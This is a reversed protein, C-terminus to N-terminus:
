RDASTVPNGLQVWHGEPCVLAPPRTVSHVATDDGDDDGLEEHEEDRAVPPVTVVDPSYVMWVKVDVPVNSTVSEV